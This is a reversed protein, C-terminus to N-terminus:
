LKGGTPLWMGDEPLHMSPVYRHTAPVWLNEEETLDPDKYDMSSLYAHTCLSPRLKNSEDFSSPSHFECVLLNWIYKVNQVEFSYSSTLNSGRVESVQAACKGVLGGLDGGM